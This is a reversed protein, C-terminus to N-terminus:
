RKLRLKLYEGILISAPYLVQEEMQAHLMLKEAFRAHQPRNEAKAASALQELAGVIARHEKLMQPYDTKLRDSMALAKSMEPTVKGQALAPLLGLPPMAYEEEKVFHAHLLRAVEKAAVGVRGGAATAQALEAHLEDHESKLSRPIKLEALRDGKTDHHATLGHTDQREGAQAAQHSDHSAGAAPGYLHEVYHLLGVYAKVYERGADVDDRDFNKRAVAPDFHERIGAHATAPFLKLLPALSGTRVAEDAAPIAPGLDRGAPKLGTYSEGEGARHLRVVTEFFYTDAVERAQSTLTRVTMTKQFAARVESEDRKQVWILAHNVNGRELASAAAKVVPGDRGDCHALAGAPAFLGAGLMLGAMMMLAKSGLGKM